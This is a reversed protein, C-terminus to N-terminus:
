IGKTKIRIGNRALRNDILKRVEAIIKLTGDDLYWVSFEIKLGRIINGHGLSYLPVFFDEASYM